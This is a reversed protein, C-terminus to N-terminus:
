IRLKDGREHGDVPAQYPGVDRRGANFDPGSPSRARGLRDRQNEVSENVNVDVNM